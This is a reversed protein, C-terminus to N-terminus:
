RNTLMKTILLFVYLIKNESNKTIFDKLENISAYKLQKRLKFFNVDPHLNNADLNKYIKIFKYANITLDEDSENDEDLHIKISHKSRKILILDKYVDGQDYYEIDNDM